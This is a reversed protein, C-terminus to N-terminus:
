ARGTERWWARLEPSRLAVVGPRRMRDSLISIEGDRALNALVADDGYGRASAPDYGLRAISIQVIGAPHTLGLHANRIGMIRASRSVYEHRRQKPTLTAYETRIRQAAATWRARFEDLATTTTM